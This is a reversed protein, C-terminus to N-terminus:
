GFVCTAMWTNLLKACKSTSESLGSYIPEMQKESLFQAIRQALMKKAQKIETKKSLQVLKQQQQHQQRQQQRQLTNTTESLDLLIHLDSSEILMKKIEGQLDSKVQQKSPVQRARLSSASTTARHM